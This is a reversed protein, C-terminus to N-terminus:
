SKSSSFSSYQNLISPVPQDLDLEREIHLVANHSEIRLSPPAAAAAFSHDQHHHCIIIGTSNRNFNEDDM